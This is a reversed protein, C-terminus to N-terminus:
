PKMNAIRGIVFVISAPLVLSLADVLVWIYFPASNLTTTYQSYDVLVKVVFAVVLVFSIVNCLMSIKKKM